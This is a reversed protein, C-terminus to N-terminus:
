RKALDTEESFQKIQERIMSSTNSEQKFASKNVLSDIGLLSEEMLSQSQYVEPVICLSILQIKFCTGVGVESTVEITGGM